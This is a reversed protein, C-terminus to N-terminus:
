NTKPQKKHLLYHYVNQNGITIVYANVFEYGAKSMFNLADIVSNFVMKKGTEDKLQTDDNTWISNEQGFDLQITLKTSMFKSTALVQMYEVDIDKIPKDNVTQANSAYAALLLLASTIIKKM